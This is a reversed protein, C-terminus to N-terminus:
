FAWASSSSGAAGGGVPLPPSPAPVHGWVVSTTQNSLGPQSAHKAFHLTIMTDKATVYVIQECKPCGLADGAEFDFYDEVPWKHGCHPCAAFPTDAIKDQEAM